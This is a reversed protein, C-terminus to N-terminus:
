LQLESMGTELARFHPWGFGNKDAAKEGSVLGNDITPAWNSFPVMLVPRGFNHPLGSVNDIDPASSNPDRREKHPFVCYSLQSINFQESSPSDM